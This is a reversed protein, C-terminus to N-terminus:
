YNTSTVVNINEKYNITNSLSNGNGAAKEVTDDIFEVGKISLSSRTWLYGWIDYVYFFIPYL